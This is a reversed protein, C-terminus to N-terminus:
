EDLGGKKKLKVAHFAKEFESLIVFSKNGFKYLTFDGSKLHEYFTPKSCIKKKFIDQIPTYKFQEKQAPPNPVVQNELVEKFWKKMVPELKSLPLSFLIQENQM